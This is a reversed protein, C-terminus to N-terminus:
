DKDWEHSDMHLHYFHDWLLTDSFWAEEYMVEKWIEATELEEKCDANLEDYDSRECSFTGEIDCPDYSYM